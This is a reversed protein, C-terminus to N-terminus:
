STWFFFDQNILSDRYPFRSLFPCLILIFKTNKTGTIEQTTSVNFTDPEPRYPNSNDETYYNDNPENPNSNDETNYNYNDTNM